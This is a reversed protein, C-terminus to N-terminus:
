EVAYETREREPAEYDSDEGGPVALEDATGLGLGLGIIGPMRRSLGTSDIEEPKFDRDSRM